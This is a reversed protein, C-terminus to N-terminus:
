KVPVLRDGFPTRVVRMGQPVDEDKIIKRKFNKYLQRRKKRDERKKTKKLKPTVAPKPPPLAKGQKLSLKAIKGEDICEHGKREYSKRCPSDAPYEIRIERAEVSLLYYDSYGEIKIPTRTNNRFYQVFEKRDPGKLVVARKDGILSTGQLFFDKQPRMKLKTVPKKRPPPLKRAGVFPSSLKTKIAQTTKPPQIKQKGRDPDFLDFGYANSILLFMALIAGYFNIPLKM